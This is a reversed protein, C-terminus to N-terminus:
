ADFAKALEMLKELGLQEGRIQPDINVKQLAALVEESPKSLFKLSNTIVKRRSNFIGRSIAFLRKEAAGSLPLERKVELEIFASDVKPAPKFCGAPVDVVKRVKSYYSACVTLAGYSKTGPKAVLRDAVEKQIMLYIKRVIPQHETLLKIILPTTLYYPINGAVTILAPPQPAISAIDFEMIDAKVLAMGPTQAFKRELMAFLKHDMEVVTLLRNKKVLKETLVGYGGGVELLVDGEPCTIAAEIKNVINNDTLFNQGMSKRPRYSFEEFLKSISEM